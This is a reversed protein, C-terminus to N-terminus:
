PSLIVRSPKSGCSIRLASGSPIPSSPCFYRVSGDPIDPTHPTSLPELSVETPHPSQAPKLLTSHRGDSTLTAISQIIMIVTDPVDKVVALRKIRKTYEQLNM